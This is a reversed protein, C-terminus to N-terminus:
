CMAGCACGSSAKSAPESCGDARGLTGRGAAGDSTPRRPISTLPSSMPNWKTATCMPGPAPTTSPISCRLCRRQRTARVLGQLRWSRGCRPMPTSDVTKASARRIVRTKDFPPTFLLAVQDGPRILEREVAQMARVTRAPDGAGSLVAWSQSISDIHCADNTVSGLPTGDDFWARRYWEGDWAERELAAQLMGAQTRWSAARVTEGRAEALPAFDSLAAYLLWGLWVSEGQGLEGVRNMGDNWDGTGMLPLGRFGVKM